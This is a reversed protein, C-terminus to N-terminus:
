DEDMDEDDNDDEDVYSADDVILESIEEEDPRYSSVPEQVTDRPILRGTQTLWDLLSVQQKSPIVDAPEHSPTERLSPNPM